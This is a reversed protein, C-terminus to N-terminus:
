NSNNSANPTSALAARSLRKAESLSQSDKDFVITFTPAWTQRIIEVLEKNNVPQKEWEGKENKAVMAEIYKNNTHIALPSNAGKIAFLVAALEAANITSAKLRYVYKKDGVIVAFAARDDKGTAFGNVYANM